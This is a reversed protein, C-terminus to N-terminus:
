EINMASTYLELFISNQNFFIVTKDNCFKNVQSYTMATLLPMYDKQM